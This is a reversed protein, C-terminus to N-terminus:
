EETNGRLAYLDNRSSLEYTAAQTEERGDDMAHGDSECVHASRRDQERRWSCLGMPQKRECSREAHRWRRIRCGYCGRTVHEPGSLRARTIRPDDARDKVDQDGPGGSAAAVTKNGVSILAAGAALTSVVFKRRSKM